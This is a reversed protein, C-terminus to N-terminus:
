QNKLFIPKKVFDSNLYMNEASILNYIDAIKIDLEISERINPDLFELHKLNTVLPFKLDRKKLENLIERGKEDFALPRYYLLNGDLKEQTIKLAMQFMTRRVRTYTFKKTKSLLIWEELSDARKLNQLIRKPLGSNSPDYKYIDRENFFLLRERLFDFYRKEISELKGDDKSKIEERIKTGSENHELGSRKISIPELRTLNKLYEIALINNSGELLEKDMYPLYENIAMSRAVPYSLGKKQILSIKKDIKGSNNVLFDRIDILSKSSDSEAGFLLYDTVKLGELLRISNKSFYEASSVSYIEPLQFILSIGNEVAAKARDWKNYIAPEGRQVFDGSMVAIFIDIGYKKKAEEILYKHGKHFPNFEAVIGAIKKNKMM